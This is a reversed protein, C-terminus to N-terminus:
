EGYVKELGVICKQFDEASLEAKLGFIMKNMVNQVALDLYEKFEEQAKDDSNMRRIRKKMRLQLDSAAEEKIMQIKPMITVGEVWGYFEKIAAEIIDDAQHIAEAINEDVETVKFDDIDYLSVNDLERINTDLDRPVALDIMVLQANNSRKAVMEKTMTFHPSSTASIIIDCNNMFEERLDYALSTCGTPVEVDSHKYNRVTVFVNAGHDVFARAAYKGMQGNGIVMCIKNRVDYGEHWLKILAQEIASLSGKPFVIETKIKKASTIAMRFLVELTSDTFSNERAFSLADKVQTIIQDEGLIQSKLGASLYFLHEIAVEDQRHVFYDSFTEPELNKVKCVSEYLSGQWNKDVHAWVEMRNCTSIIVAGKIGDMQQLAEMADSMKKKTFSFVARVDVTAKTHDIGIMRISM